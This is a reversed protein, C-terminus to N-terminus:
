SLFGERVLQMRLEAQSKEIYEERNIRGEWLEKTAELAVSGAAVCCTGMVGTLDGPTFFLSVGAIVSGGGIAAGALTFYTLDRAIGAEKARKTLLAPFTIKVANNGVLDVLLRVFDQCNKRIVNYQTQLPGNWILESMYKIDEHTWPRATYGLPDRETIRRGEERKVRKWEEEPLYRTSYARQNKESSKVRALEYCYGNICIAWHGIVDVTRKWFKNQDATPTTFLYIPYGTNSSRQALTQM